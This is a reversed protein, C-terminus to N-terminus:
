ACSDAYDGWQEVHAALHFAADCGQAAQTMAAVNDLDGLASKAGLAEVKSASSDSRALATVECGGEVLRM